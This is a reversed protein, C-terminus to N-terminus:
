GPPVLRNRIDARLANREAEDKARENEYKTKLEDIRRNLSHIHVLSSELQAHDNMKAHDEADCPLEANLSCVQQQDAGYSEEWVTMVGSRLMGRANLVARRSRNAEGMLRPLAEVGSRADSVAKRLELRLDLAKVANARRYGRFGLVAGVVGSITGIAGSVAGFVSLWSADPM